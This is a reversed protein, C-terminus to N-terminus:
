DGSMVVSSWPPDPVAVRARPAPAPTAVVRPLRVRFRSGEGVRSLVEITGGHAAVIGHVVSLGLGTGEGVPKTTFFPDFIRSRVAEEMGCGDDAVELLVDAREEGPAADPRLALAIKGSADGIAQAANTLLNVIVRHLQSADGHIAPVPEIAEVIRIRAPVSARLMGLAERLLASLDIEQRAAQENRSFALVQQVLAKARHSAAEVRELNRREPSGEPLRAATLKTLAMIPVLVNNLDHAVGGALTGLAELKQSHQLQSELRHRQEEAAKLDTMDTWLSVSGGDATRAQGIHIWRNDATQWYWHERFSRFNELKGRAFQELTEGPQLAYLGNEARLKFLEFASMGIEVPKSREDVGGRLHLRRYRENCAILREDSSFLAFGENIHELAQRYREELLRMEAAQKREATIDSGTGRYGLFTEGEDFYPVGSIRICRTRGRDNFEMTFDRFPRQERLQGLLLERRAPDPTAETWNFSRRTIEEASYRAGRGAVVKVSVLDPAMEWFWDSSATAFDKFRGESEAHEATRAALHAEALGLAGAVEAIERVASTAPPMREGRGLAIAADRLSVIAAATRGSLVRALGVGFLFAAAPFVVVSAGGGRRWLLYGLLCLMPVLAVAVLLLNHLRLGITRPSPIM